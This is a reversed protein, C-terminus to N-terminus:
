SGPGRLGDPHHHRGGRGLSRPQRNWDRSLHRQRGPAGPQHIGSPRHVTGWIAIGSVALITTVAGLQELRLAAWIAFPFMVYILAEHAVNTGSWNQFVFGSVLVLLAMFGLGELAFARRLAQRYHAAWVLLFSTVVLMGLLNGVWWTTWLTFFPAPAPDFVLWLTTVGLTASIAASIAAAGALGMVDRIRDLSLRFGVVRKLLYAGALAELTNALGLGLAMALPAGTILSGGVVGLAIGPWYRAGLLLLAALAIGSPPWVPTTNAQVYALQLALRAVLHYIVALGAVEM